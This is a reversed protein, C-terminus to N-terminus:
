SKGYYGGNQAKLWKYYERRIRNQYKKRIRKKKAYLAMALWGPHERGAWALSAAYPDLASMLVNVADCISDIVPRLADCIVEFVPRAAEALQECLESYSKDQTDM